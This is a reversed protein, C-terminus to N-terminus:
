DVGNEQAWIDLTEEVIDLYEDLQSIRGEMNKEDLGTSQVLKEWRKKSTTTESLHCLALTWTRLMLWLAADPYDDWLTEVANKYYQFRAINIKVPIDKRKGATGLASIWLKMYEPWDDISIPTQTFLDILGSALGPRNLNEAKQPFNLIFRRETLPSGTLCSIANAAYELSKLYQYIQNPGYPAKNSYLQLWIDRAFEAFPRARQIIYEPKSFQACVAAQTFEFWHASDYMQVANECLFSGIWADTRLSRPQRFFEHSLHSIDFHVEDCVPIIEREIDPKSDHIFILDIDTTGGLFPHEYIMSGTMYICLIHRNRYTIEKIRRQTLKLLSERTIRM